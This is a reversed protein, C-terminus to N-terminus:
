IKDSKEIIEKPYILEYAFIKRIKYGKSSFNLLRYTNGNTSAKADSKPLLLEVLEDYGYQAALMLATRGYYNTAKADVM